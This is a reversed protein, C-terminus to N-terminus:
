QYYATVIIIGSGGAGGAAGATGATGAAGAAGVAYAYTASPSTILKRLYGGAAGGGGTQSSYGAGGGGSGTNASAAQGPQGNTVPAGAGGYPSSGGVGSAGSTTVIASGGAGTINIDGGTATGGTAVGGTTQGGVGGTGTLLSTGFTTTGGTGGTGISASGSGGGGGGGGILEVILYKATGGATPTTYTGSGTTLVTVQPVPSVLSLTPNGSIGDGNTVTIQNATGTVTRASYVGAGTRTVLGTANFGTINDLATGSAGSVGTGGSSVGLTGTVGTSLPLGTCNTLVGSTPTGLLPTILVPSTQMLITSGVGSAGAITTGNIVPTTLAPSNQFVVTSGTGTTGAFTAGNIVPTTLVPATARVFGGTGTPTNAYGATLTGSTTVPSNTITFDPPMALGVSNVSNGWGVQYNVNSTKQLSQGTTGGVPINTVTGGGVFSTLDSLRLASNATAPTPLNIVQNSNMDIPSLMQNPTTGDRSLTNDLATTIASNNANFVSVATADSPFSTLNALTLKSM